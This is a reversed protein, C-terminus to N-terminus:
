MHKAFDEPRLELAQTVLQDDVGAETVGGALRVALEKQMEGM